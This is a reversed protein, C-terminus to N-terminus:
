EPPTGTKIYAQICAKLCARYQDPSLALRARKEACHDACYPVITKRLTDQDVKVYKKAYPTGKGRMAM